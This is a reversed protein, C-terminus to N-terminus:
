EYITIPDSKGKVAVVDLFRFDFAQNARDVIAHSAIISTGYTKNLGELRSALNIADGEATYNM